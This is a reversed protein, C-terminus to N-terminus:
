VPPENLEALRRKLQQTHEELRRMQREVALDIPASQSEFAAEVGIEHVNRWCVRVRLEARKRPIQLSFEVPLLGAQDLVLRAGSPSTNRILCDLTPKRRESVIRGALYAPWRQEKRRELM